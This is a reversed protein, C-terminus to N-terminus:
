ELELIAELLVISVRQFDQKGPRVELYNLDNSGVNGCFQLCSALTPLQFVIVVDCFTLYIRECQKRIYRPLSKLNNLM